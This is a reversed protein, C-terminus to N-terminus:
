PFNGTLYLLTNPTIENIFKPVIDLYIGVAFAQIFRGLMLMWFNLNLSLIVGITTFVAAKLM